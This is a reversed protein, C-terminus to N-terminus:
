FPRAPWGLWVKPTASIAGGVVVGAIYSPAFCEWSNAPMSPGLMFAFLYEVVGSFGAFTIKPATTTTAVVPELFIGNASRSTGAGTGLFPQASGQSYGSIKYALYYTEGVIMGGASAAPATGVLDGTANTCTAAGTSLVCNAPPTWAPWSPGAFTPDTILLPRKSPQYILQANATDTRVYPPVVGNTIAAMASATGPPTYKVVYPTLAEVNLDGHPGSTLPGANGDARMTPYLKHVAFPITNLLGALNSLITSTGSRIIEWASGNWAQPKNDRQPGAWIVDISCGSPVPSTGAGTITITGGDITLAVRNRGQEYVAASTGSIIVVARLQASTVTETTTLTITTNSERAATGDGRSVSYLGADARVSNDMVHPAFGQQTTTGSGHRINGSEDKAGPVIAKAPATAGITAEAESQATVSANVKLKGLDDCQANRGTGDPAEFVPVVANGIGFVKSMVDTFWGM